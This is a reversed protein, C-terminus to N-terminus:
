KKYDRYKLENIKIYIHLIALIGAITAIICFIFWISNIISLLLESISIKETQIILWVIFIISAINYFTLIKWTVDLFCEWKERVVREYTSEDEKLPTKPILLFKIEMCIILSLVFVWINYIFFIPTKQPIDDVYGIGGTYIMLCTAITIISIILTYIISFLDEDM